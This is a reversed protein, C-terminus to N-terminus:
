LVGLRTTISWMSLIYILDISEYRKLARRGLEEKHAQKASKAAEQAKMKEQRPEIILKLIGTVGGAGLIAGLMAIIIAEM